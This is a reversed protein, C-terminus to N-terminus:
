LGPFGQGAFVRAYYPDRGGANALGRAGLHWPCHVFARAQEIAPLKLSAIVGAYLPSNRLLAAAATVGGSMTNFVLLKGSGDTIGFVNGNLGQECTVWARAVAFHLGVLQKCLLTAALNKQETTYTM